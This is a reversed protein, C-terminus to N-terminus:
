KEGENCRDSVLVQYSNLESAWYEKDVPWYLLNYSSSSATKSKYDRREYSQKISFADVGSLYDVLQVQERLELFMEAQERLEQDIKLDLRSRLIKESSEYFELLDKKLPNALSIEGSEIQKREFRLARITEVLKSFEDKLFTMRVLNMDESLPSRSKIHTYTSGFREEFEQTVDKISDFHCLKRLTLMELLYLEPHMTEIYHPAKLTKITGLTEAYMKLWYSVWAMERLVQGMLRHDNSKIKQYLKLSSRLDKMEFKLRAAQWISDLRLSLPARRIGALRELNREAVSKKGRRAGELATNFKWRYYWYNGKGIRSQARLGWTTLDKSFNDIAVFYSFMPELSQPIEQFSASNILRLLEQDEFNHNKLIEEVIELGRLAPASGKFDVATSQAMEYRCFLLGLKGCLEAMVIRAEAEASSGEAKKRVNLVEGYAKSMEGASIRAMNKEYFDKDLPLYRWNPITEFSQAVGDTSTFVSLFILAVIRLKM